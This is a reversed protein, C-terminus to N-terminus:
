SRASRRSGTSFATGLGIRRNQGARRCASPRPATRRTFTLQRQTLFPGPIVEQNETSPHEARTELGRRRGSRLDGAPTRTPSRDKPRRAPLTLLGQWLKTRSQSFEQFCNGTQEWPSSKNTDTSKETFTPSCTSRFTETAVDAAARRLRGTPQVANRRVSTKANSGPGADHFCAGV